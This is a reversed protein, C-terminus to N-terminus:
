ASAMMAPPLLPSATLGLQGNCAKGVALRQGGAFVRFLGAGWEVLAAAAKDHAFARADQDQLLILVGLGSPGLDVGLNHAVAVGAVGVVDGSRMRFRLAGDTGELQRQLFRADLVQFVLDDYM